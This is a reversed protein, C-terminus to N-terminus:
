YIVIGAYGVVSSFDGSTDGSTQYKILKAHKAGLEKSAALMISAPGCGCMTVDFREVVDILKKEDLDLIAGIAKKDKEEALDQAEYHTMDSSAIITVDGEMKLEKIAMAISKGVEEYETLSSSGVVIPVITFDKQMAQLFPLQVEISHEYFHASEDERILACSAKLRQALKQNVRVEGLPTRWTDSACISFPEGLGTHNPGLIVYIPRLKISSFVAGAVNGSYVYGAHPCVVGIASERHLSNNLMPGIERLLVKESEPYFQGAVAPKRTMSVRM